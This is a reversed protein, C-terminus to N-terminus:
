AGEGWTNLYVPLIRRLRRKELSFLWLEKLREECSLHELGKMVRTARQQARELLEMDRKYRSAWLQVCHELSSRPWTPWRSAFALEYFIIYSFCPINLSVLQQLEHCANRFFQPLVSHRSAGDCCIQTWVEAEWVWLQGTAASCHRIWVFMVLKQVSESRSEQLKRCPLEESLVTSGTLKHERIKHVKLLLSEILIWLTWYPKYCKLNWTRPAQQKATTLCVQCAAACGSDRATGLLALLQHLLWKRGNWWGCEDDGELLAATGCAAKWLRSRCLLLLVGRVSSGPAWGSRKGGVASVSCSPGLLASRM